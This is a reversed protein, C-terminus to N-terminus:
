CTASTNAWASAWSGTSRRSRRDRDLAAEEPKAEAHARALWPVLYVWRLLGLMQVLGALVGVVIAVAILM